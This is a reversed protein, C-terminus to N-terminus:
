SILKGANCEIAPLTRSNPRKAKCCFPRATSSQSSNFAITVFNYIKHVLLEEMQQKEPKYKAFKSVVLAM